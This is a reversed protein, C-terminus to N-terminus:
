ILEDFEKLSNGLKFFKQYVHRKILYIFKLISVYKLM